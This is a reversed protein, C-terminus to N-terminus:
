RPVSALRPADRPPRLARIAAIPPISGAANSTSQPPALDDTIEDLDQQFEALRAASPADKVEVAVDPTYPAPPDADRDLVATASQEAGRVAIEGSRQTPEVSGHGTDVTARERHVDTAGQRRAAAQQGNEAVGTLGAGVELPRERDEGTETM